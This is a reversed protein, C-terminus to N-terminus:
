LIESVREVNEQTKLTSPRGSREEDEVSEYDNHFRELWKYVTKLTVAADGYVLKLKKHTEKVIKATQFL